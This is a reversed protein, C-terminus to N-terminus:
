LRDKKERSAEADDTLDTDKLTPAGVEGSGSQTYSSSLPILKDSLNLINEELFNLSITDKETFKNLTNYALKVPMGYQASELLDDKFDAITYVSVEYFKVKSPNSIQYSIIRNVWAETQPLLSSIAFETNAIKAANFATTGTITAGNLVESGGATNLVTETAKAVKNTDAAKDNDFSITDLEGPVIAATTYDPIAEDVMKNFYDIMIDPDIKWDDPENSNAITEMKLWIMKYIEQEDAIAQIDELDSLNIISNFLAVFPPIAIEYDDSRFKLCVCNEDPMPQWRESNGGAQYTRYMSTFPEGWMELIDQRSRFYTMDMDFSFDGTQYIGSIKCYDPDLPIIFIGTDDIFVCGYFVDELFCKKYIKLFEHQLNMRELIDLTDNYSKLIKKPDNDKTLDYSPIVSRAYLCFMNAYFDIIRFYTHSRYYLYRSLSRLNVENSGINQLYQRLTEKNFTSITKNTTKSTDRIRHIASSADDFNKIRKQAKEYRERMEAATHKTSPAASVKSNEQAM